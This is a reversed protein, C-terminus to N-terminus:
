TPVQRLHAATAAAQAECVARLAVRDHAADNGGRNTKCDATWAAHFIDRAQEDSLITM